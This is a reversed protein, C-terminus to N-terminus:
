NAPAETDDIVYYDYWNKAFEERSISRSKATDLHSFATKTDAESIGIATLFASFEKEDISEGGDFDMADYLVKNLDTGMNAANPSGFFRETAKFYEELVVKNDGDVDAPKFYGDWIARYASTIKDHESSGSNVGLNQAVKQAIKDFDSAEVVGDFEM